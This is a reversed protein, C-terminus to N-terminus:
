HRSFHRMESGHEFLEGVSMAGLLLLGLLLLVAIVIRPRSRVTRWSLGTLATRVQLLALLALPRWGPAVPAPVPAPPLDSTLPPLEDLFRAAYAATMRQDGEDLSLLGRTVADHLTRVVGERDADSARARVGEGFTTTRGSPDPTETM